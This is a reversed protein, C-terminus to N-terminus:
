CGEVCCTQCCNLSLYLWNLARSREEMVRSQNRVKEEAGNTAPEAARTKCAIPFVSCTARAILFIKSDVAEGIADFKVDGSGGWVSM